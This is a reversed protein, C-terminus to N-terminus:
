NRVVGSKLTMVVRSPDGILGREVSLRRNQPHRRPAAKCCSVIRTAASSVDEDVGGVGECSAAMWVARWDYGFQVRAQKSSNTGLDDHLAVSMSQRQLLTGSLPFIVTQTVAPHVGISPRCVLFMEDVMHPAGILFSDAVGAKIPTMPPATASSMTNNLNAEANKILFALPAVQSSQVIAKVMANAIGGLTKATRRSDFETKADGV